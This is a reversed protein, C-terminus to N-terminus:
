AGYEDNGTPAAASVSSPRITEPQLTSFADYPTVSQASHESTDCSCMVPPPLSTANVHTSPSPAVRIGHPRQRWSSNSCEVSPM